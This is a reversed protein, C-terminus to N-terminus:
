SARSFMGGEPPLFHQCLGEGASRVAEEVRESRAESSLLEGDEQLIRFSALFAGAKWQITATVSANGPVRRRIEKLWEDVLAAGATPHPTLRDNQSACEERVM